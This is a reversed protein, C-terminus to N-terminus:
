PQVGSSGYAAGCEAVYAAVNRSKTIAAGSSASASSLEIFRDSGELWASVADLLKGKDKGAAAAKIACEWIICVRWGAPPAMSYM